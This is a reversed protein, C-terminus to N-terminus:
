GEAVGKLFAGINSIDIVHTRRDGEEGPRGVAGFAVDVKRLAERGTSLGTTM